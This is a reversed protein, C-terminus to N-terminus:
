LPELKSLAQRFYDPLEARGSMVLMLLGIGLWGYKM